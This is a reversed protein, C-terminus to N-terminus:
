AKKRNYLCTIPNEHSDSNTGPEDRVWKGYNPCVPNCKYTHTTEGSFWDGTKYSYDKTCPKGSPLTKKTPQNPYYYYCGQSLNQPPIKKQVTGIYGERKSLFQKNLIFIILCCLFLIIYKKM